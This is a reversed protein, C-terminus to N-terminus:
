LHNTEKKKKVYACRLTYEDVQEFIELQELM